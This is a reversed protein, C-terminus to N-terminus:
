KKKRVVMLYYLVGSAALLVVVVVIVPILWGPAGGESDNDGDAPVTAQTPDTTNSDDGEPAATTSADAQESASTTGDVPEGNVTATADNDGITTTTVVNGGDQKVTTTAANNGDQKVTTTAANNGDNKTTTNAAGGAQTTTEKAPMEAEVLSLDYFQTKCGITWFGFIYPLKKVRANNEMDFRKKGGYSIVTRDPSVYIEFAMETNLKARANSVEYPLTTANIFNNVFVETNQFHCLASYDCNEIDDRNKGRFIMRPGYWGVDSAFELIKLKGSFCYTKNNDLGDIKFVVNSDERATDVSTLVGDKWTWTESVDKIDKDPRLLDIKTSNSILNKGAASVSLPLVSLLSTMVLLVALIMSFKKRFTKVFIVGKM